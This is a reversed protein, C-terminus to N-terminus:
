PSPRTRVARVEAYQLVKGKWLYGPRIEEVVTGPARAPDDIAEVVTMAHPDAPKGVCAIRVLDERAM